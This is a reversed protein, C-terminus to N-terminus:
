STIDFSNHTERQTANLFNMNKKMQQMSDVTKNQLYLMRKKAEQLLFLAETADAANLQPVSKLLDSIRQMDDTIVAAKFAKLWM